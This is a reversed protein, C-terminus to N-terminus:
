IIYFNQVWNFRKIQNLLETPDTPQSLRALPIAGIVLRHDDQPYGKDIFYKKNKELFNQCDKKLKSVEEISSNHFRLRCDAAITTPPVFDLHYQDHDYTLSMLDKGVDAYLTYIYGFNYYPTFLKYDEVDLKDPKPTDYWTIKINPREGRNLSEMKHIYINLDSWIPRLERPKDQWWPDTLWADVKGHYQEFFSHLYNLTDQDQSDTLKRDILGPVMQNIQDVRENIIGFVREETWENNLGDFRDPNSIPNGYQQGRQYAKIWKPTFHNDIIDYELDLTHTFDDKQSLRVIVKRMVM